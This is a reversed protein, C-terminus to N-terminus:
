RGNGAARRELSLVGVDQLQQVIKPVRGPDMRIGLAEAVDVLLEQEPESYAKDLAAAVELLEFMAKRDRPSLASLRKLWASRRPILRNEMARRRAPTTQRLLAALTSAEEVSLRGDSSFVFWLGEIVLDIHEKRLVPHRKLVDRLARQYRCYRRVTDGVNRTVRWNTMASTAVGVFPIVNRLVSEKLLRAGIDLGIEQDEPDIIRHLLERDPNTESKGAEETHFALAYLRWLDEPDDPNFPVEFVEALDCTMELHVLARVVMEAGLALLGVPVAVLAGALGTQETIVTAGTALSGATAGSLAVKICANRIILQAQEEEALESEEVPRSVRAERWKLYRAVLETFWNAGFTRPNEGFAQLSSAIARTAPIPAGVEWVSERM